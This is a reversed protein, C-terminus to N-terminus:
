GGGVYIRHFRHGLRTLVEYGITGARSGVEEITINPSILEAWEGDHVPAGRHTPEGPADTVDVTILDMSVRGVIPCRKGRIVVEGGRQGTAASLHRFVGDAYGASITAIRRPGSSSWTASYGVTDRAPVDHVQLIRAHVEVVPKVPTAGGKFAQGGYLAYGPRVLDFHYNKGLMLGDSAALSRPAAPLLASLERFRALQQANMPQGPDDACALHSMVLSLELRALLDVDSALKRVDAEGLGLRNLGTELQLACPFGREGSKAPLPSPHPAALFSEHPAAEPAAARRQGEGRGEGRLRPSPYAAAWEKGQELTSLVPSAAIAHLAEVSGPLLGDLVYITAHPALARVQAAEDVTAVFFTRCGAKALAPVVQSAGLGYADAKVVAACESPAVLAALARWNSAIAALDVIIVGTTSFPLRDPDFPPM